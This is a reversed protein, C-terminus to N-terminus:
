KKRLLSLERIKNNEKNLVLLVSKLFGLVITILIQSSVRSIYIQITEFFANLILRSCDKFFHIGMANVQATLNELKQRLEEVLDPDPTFIVNPIKICLFEFVTTTTYIM